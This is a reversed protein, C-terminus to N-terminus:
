STFRLLLPLLSSSRLKLLHRLVRGSGIPLRPPGASPVALGGYFSHPACVRALALTTRSTPTLTLPQGVAGVLRHSEPLGLAATARRWCQRCVPLGCCVGSSSSCCAALVLKRPSYM